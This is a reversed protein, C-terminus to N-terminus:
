QCILSVERDFETVTQRPQLRLAGDCETFLYFTFGSPIFLRESPAHWWRARANLIKSQLQAQQNLLPDASQRVVLFYGTARRAEDRKVLLQEAASAPAALPLMLLLSCALARLTGM